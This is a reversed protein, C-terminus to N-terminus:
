CTRILQKHIEYLQPILPQIGDNVIIFDALKRKEEEPMQKNIRNLVEERSVGDRNMVREIRLEEPAVVLITYDLTKYSGSEFLLAAEKLSYCSTQTNAWDVADQIVVPHVISNLLELKEPNNFVQASLWKRNLSGDEFYVEEGFAQILGERIIVSRTMILKAEKDADYFPIGMTKFIKAVFSKGSGIGGTIGVKISKM